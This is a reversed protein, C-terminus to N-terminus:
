STYQYVDSLILAASLGIWTLLIFWYLIPDEKKTVAQVLHVEGSYFSPIVWFLFLVGWIWNWEFFVALYILLLAFLTPWKKM